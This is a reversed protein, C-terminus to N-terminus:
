EKQPTCNAFPQWSSAEAAKATLERIAARDDDMDLIRKAPLLIRLTGNDDFMPRVATWYKTRSGKPLEWLNLIDTNSLKVPYAGYREVEDGDRWEAVYRLEDYRFVTLHAHGASPKDVSGCDWDGLLKPNLPLTGVPAVPVEFCGGFGFALVGFLLRKVRLRM